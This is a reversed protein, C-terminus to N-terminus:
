ASRRAFRLYRPARGERLAKAEYRTGPWGDWPAAEDSLPEFDARGAMVKRVHRVYDAVDTAIRLEAGAAMIPSLLDLNDDNVFRRPAHRRKPWPDPYLLYVRGVAGEPLMDFLFRADDAHVRVNDLRDAELGSLFAAVGNLFPECGIFGVDRHEAALSLLHEGAGFGIEMWLARRGPFLADPAIMAGEDLGADPALGDLRGDILAARNPRLRKGRRRGYFNVWRAGDERLHEAM